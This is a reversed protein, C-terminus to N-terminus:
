SKMFKRRSVKGARALSGHVKGGKLPITLDLAQHELFSLCVDDQPGPTLILNSFMKSVHFQELIPIRYIILQGRFMEVMYLNPILQDLKVSLDM